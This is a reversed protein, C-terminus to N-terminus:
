CTFEIVPLQLLVGLPGPQQGDEHYQVEWQDVVFKATCMLQTAPQCWVGDFSREPVPFTCPHLLPTATVLCLVLVLVLVPQIRALLSSM